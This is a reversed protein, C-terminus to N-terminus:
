IGASQHKRSSTVSVFQELSVSFTSTNSCGDTSISKGSIMLRPFSVTRASFLEVEKKM